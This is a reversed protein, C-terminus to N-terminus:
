LITHTSKKKVIKSLTHNYGHIDVVLVDQNDDYEEFYCITDYITDPDKDEYIIKGYADLKKTYNKDLDQEEFDSIYILFGGDRVVICSMKEIDNCRIDIADSILSIEKDTFSYKEYYHIPFLIKRPLDTYLFLYIGVLFILVAILIILKKNIYKSFKHLYKMYELVELRLFKKQILEQLELNEQWVQQM